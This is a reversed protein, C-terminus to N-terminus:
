IKYVNDMWKLKKLQFLLELFALTHVDILRDKQGRPYIKWFIFYANSSWADIAQNEELLSNRTISCHVSGQFQFANSPFLIEM